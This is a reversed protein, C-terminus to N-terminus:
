GESKHRRTSNQLGQPLRKVKGLEKGVSKLVQEYDM